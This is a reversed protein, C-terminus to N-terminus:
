SLSGSQYHSTQATEQPKRYQGNIRYDVIKTGKSSNCSKCLPQINDIKNTGGAVLPVVHDATLKGECGCRLCKNGYSECLATFEDDTFRGEANMERARRAHAIARRKDPNKESWALSRKRVHEKNEEYWKRSYESAKEKNEERWKRLYENVKEKNEERYKRRREKVKEKNEEYYKRLYENNCAKCWSHHSGDKEKGCKICQKM